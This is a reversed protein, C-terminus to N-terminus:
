SNDALESVRDDYVRHREIHGNIEDQNDSYYSLAEFVQALTIHPMAQVMEEPSYGLRWKEVISRVPVRTGKIIPEGGQVGPVSTIYRYGVTTEMSQM